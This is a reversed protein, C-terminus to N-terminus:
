FMKGEWVVDGRSYPMLIQMAALSGKNAGMWDALIHAIWMDGQRVLKTPRIPSSHANM